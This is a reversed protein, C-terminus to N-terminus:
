IDVYESDFRLMTMEITRCLRQTPNYPKKTRIDMCIYICLPLWNFGKQGGVLVLCLNIRTHGESPDIYKYVCM